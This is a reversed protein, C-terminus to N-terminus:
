NKCYGKTVVIGLLFLHPFDCEWGKGVPWRHYKHPKEKVNYLHNSGNQVKFITYKVLANTNCFKHTYRYWPRFNHSFNPPLALFVAVIKLHM